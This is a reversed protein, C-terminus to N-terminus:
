PRPTRATARCQRPPRLCLRGVHGRRRRVRGAHLPRVPRRRGLPVRDARGRLGERAQRGLDRHRQPRGGYGAAGHPGVAINMSRLWDIAGPLIRQTMPPITSSSREPQGARRALAVRPLRAPLGCAQSVLEDPRAREPVRGDRRPRPREPLAPAPRGAGLRRVVRREDRQRQHRRVDRFRRDDVHAHRDVWGNTFGVGDLVRNYQKWGWAPLTTAPPWSRARGPGTARSPRSASRSPIPRRTTSPSTRATPRRRAFGTSRSRDRRASPRTSARIPSARREGDAAAGRDRGDDARGRERRPLGLPQRVHRPAHRGAGLRREPDLPGQWAPVLHRRSRRPQLRPELMEHATGTGSGLSATYLLTM